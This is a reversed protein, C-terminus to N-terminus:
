IDQHVIFSTPLTPCHNQQSEDPTEGKHRPFQRVDGLILWCGGLEGQILWIYLYNLTFVLYHLLLHHALVLSVPHKSPNVMRGPLQCGQQRWRWYRCNISSSLPFSERAVTRWGPRHAEMMSTGHVQGRWLTASTCEM